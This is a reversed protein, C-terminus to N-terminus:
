ATATWDCETVSYVRSVEPCPLVQGIQEVAIATHSGKTMCLDHLHRMASATCRYLAQVRLAGDTM